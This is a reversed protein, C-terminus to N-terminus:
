KTSEMLFDVWLQMLCRAWPCGWHEVHRMTVYGLTATEGRAGVSSLHTGKCSAWSCICFALGVQPVPLLCVCKLMKLYWELFFLRFTEASLRDKFPLSFPCRILIGEQKTEQGSYIHMYIYVCLYIHMYVCVYIYTETHTHTHILLPLSSAKSQSFIVWTPKIQIFLTIFYLNYKGKWTQTSITTKIITPFIVLHCSLLHSTWNTGSRAKIPPLIHM